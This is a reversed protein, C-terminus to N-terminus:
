FRCSFNESHFRIAFKLYTCFYFLCSKKQRKFEHFMTSSEVPYMTLFMCKEYDVFPGRNQSSKYCSSFPQEHIWFPLDPQWFERMRSNTIFFCFVLCFPPSPPVFMGLVEVFIHSFWNIRPGHWWNSLNIWKNWFQAFQHNQSFTRSSDCSWKKWIKPRSILHSSGGFISKPFKAKKRTQSSFFVNKFFPKIIRFFVWRLKFISFVSFTSRWTISSGRANLQNHDGYRGM